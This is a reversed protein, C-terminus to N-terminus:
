DGAAGRRDGGTRGQPQRRRQRRGAVAAMDSAFLGSVASRTSQNSRTHAISRCLRDSSHLQQIRGTADAADKTCRM